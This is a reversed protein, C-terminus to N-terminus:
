PLRVTVREQQAVKEVDAGEAVLVLSGGVALAVLVTDVWDASSSWQRTSLLRAGASVGLYEARARARGVADARSLEEIAPDGPGAVLHVTPWKDPQPRVASVYDAADGPPDAGFSRALSDPNVAYVDATGAVDGVGGAGVFAVQSGDQWTVSLGATWCGLLVAVSAWDAPLRVTARDGVGLGLEDMLLFHTKAVWNALSKVSLESREGTRGNYYTVFPRTPDTAMLDAFLREPTAASGGTM